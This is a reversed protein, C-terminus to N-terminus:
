YASVPRLDDLLSKVTFAIDDSVIGAASAERFEFWHGILILMARKGLLYEESAADVAGTTYEVTITEGDTLTPFGDTGAYIRLPFSGLNAQFAAYDTGTGDPGYTVGDVSAIPQWWLELYDGWGTFTVTRAGAVFSFRSVREVYARGPAILSTIFTDESSDEVMRCQAKAEALTVPESM